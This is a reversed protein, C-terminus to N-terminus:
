NVAFTVLFGLVATVQLTGQHVPVAQPAIVSEPNYVLGGNIGSLAITDTVAVSAGDALRLSGTDGPQGGGMPYFVSRDLRIGREDVATVIAECSRAYADQRFVLEM